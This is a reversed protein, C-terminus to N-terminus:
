SSPSAAAVKRANRYMVWCASVVVAAVLALSIASAWARWGAVEVSGDEHIWLSVSQGPQARAFPGAPDVHAQGALTAPATVDVLCSGGGRTDAGVCSRIVGEGHTTTLASAAAGGIMLLAGVTFAVALFVVIALTVAQESHLRTFWRLPKAGTHDSV